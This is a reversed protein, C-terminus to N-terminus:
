LCTIYLGHCARLFCHLRMKETDVRNFRTLGGQMVAACIRSKAAFRLGEEKGCGQQELQITM